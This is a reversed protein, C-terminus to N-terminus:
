QSLKELFEQNLIAHAYDTAINRALEIEDFSLYLEILEDILGEINLSLELADLFYAEAEIFDNIIQYAKAYSYSLYGPDEIEQAFDDLFAILLDAEKTHTYYKTIVKLLEFQLDKDDILYILDQLQLIFPMSDIDWKLAIPVLDLLNIDMPPLNHVLWEFTEMVLQENKQIDAIQNQIIVFDLIDKDIEFGVKSYEMAKEFQNAIMYAKAVYLYEEAEKLPSLKQHYVLKELETVQVLEQSVIISLLLKRTELAFDDEPFYDIIVNLYKKANSLDGLTLCIKGCYYYPEVVTPNKKILQEYIAKAEILQEQHYLINAKFLKLSDNPNLIIARQNWEIAREYLSLEFFVQSLENAIIDSQQINWLEMLIAIKHELYGGRGFCHALQMLEQFIIQEEGALQFQYDLEQILVLPDDISQLEHYLKEYLSM